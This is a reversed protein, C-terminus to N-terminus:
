VIQHACLIDRFRSAYRMHTETCKKVTGAQPGGAAAIAACVDRLSGVGGAVLVYALGGSVRTREVNAYCISLKATLRIVAVAAATYAAAGRGAAIAAGIKTGALAAVLKGTLLEVQDIPYRFEPRNIALRGLIKRGQPLDSPICEFVTCIHEMNPIHAPGAGGTLAVLEACASILSRRVGDRTVLAKGDLECHAALARTFKRATADLLVPDLPSTNGRITCRKNYQEFEEKIRELPTMTAGPNTKELPKQMYNAGAGEYHLHPVAGSTDFEGTIREEVAGCVPCTREHTGASVEMPVACAACLEVLNRPATRPARPADATTPAASAPAANAPLRAVLAALVRSCDAGYHGHM